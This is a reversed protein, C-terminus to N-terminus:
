KLLIKYIFLQQKNKYNEKQIGPGISIQIAEINKADFSTKESSKLFYSQFPPYPRPLLVSPVQHLEEFPIIIDENDSNLAIIKGFVQGNRLQLAVQVKQNKKAGSSATVLISSVKNLNNQERQVVDGVLVKFTLDPMKANINDAYISVYNETAVKHPSNEIKYPIANWQRPWLFQKSNEKLADFLVVIPEKKVIRTRYSQQAIFDWNEPSGAVNDPFTVKASDTTVVIFYNFSDNYIKERPIEVQYEFNSNKIMKYNDTKQYGSPLVVEVKKITNPSVINAKIVLNEGKAIEKVPQHVVFTKAIKQHTTAFENININGFKQNMNFDNPLKDASILYTGPTIAVMKNEAQSNLSNDSNIGEIFFREGLDKLNITIKNKHPQLVAVTKKLSAKEFPDKVWLVDPLVELRWIGKEVKDLFYAGNGAYKVIESNGIGAIHTLKKSNKPNANTTNTYFFKSESNYVVVDTEYELTTNLFTNNKPYRGFSKGNPIERFVESAIKLSIAKSPTYALNLYHTQYETNAFALDIPDYAFQTAFQFKAERFSRAMAPFIVASNTDGSDFEYIIRTKNQFTKKEKFPIKYQDVNPLYNGKLLSNHVLGTPYWQFTGGQIDAKLYDDVFESRESLNYFIPNQFGAKRIVKVMTNIYATAIKGNDHSPENNIELAIIDPDNKYSIGTYSNVHNLLQIFYREQKDLITDGAYTQWKGLKGSFGETPFDKEPYGNGGVKFPTIITKIGREKLKAFLYDLLDLQPTKILNGISDTIEMDWIHVRYGDLGLRGMHYVDKDIAEKHNKDLYNIARFGHAFPLTYNVGFLRIEKNNKAYRFVGNEDVYTSKQAHLFMYNFMCILLICYKIKM